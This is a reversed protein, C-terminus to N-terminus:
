PIGPIMSYRERARCRFIRAFVEGSTRREAEVTRFIPPFFLVLPIYDTVFFFRQERADIENQKIIEYLFAIYQSRASIAYAGVYIRALFLLNYFSKINLSIFLKVLLNSSIVKRTVATYSM